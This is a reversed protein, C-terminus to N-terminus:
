FRVMIRAHVTGLSDLSVGCNLSGNRYIQPRREEAINRKNMPLQKNVNRCFMNTWDEVALRDATRRLFNSGQFNSSRDDLFTMLCCGVVYYRLLTFAKRRSKQPLIHTFICLFGSDSESQKTEQRLLALWDIINVGDNHM